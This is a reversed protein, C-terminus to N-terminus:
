LFFKQVGLRLPREIACERCCSERERERERGRRAVLLPPLECNSSCGGQADESASRPAAGRVKGRADVDVLVNAPCLNGHAVQDAHLTALGAVVGSGVAAFSHPTFTDAAYAAADLAAGHAFLELVVVLVEEGGREAGADPRALSHRKPAPLSPRRESSSSGSGQKRDRQGGALDGPEAGAAAAQGAEAEREAIKATVLGLVRLVNPHDIAQLRESKKALAKLEYKSPPERGPCAEKAVAAV